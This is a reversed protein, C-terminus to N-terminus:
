PHHLVSVDTPIKRGIFGAGLSAQQVGHPRAPLDQPPPREAPGIPPSLRIRGGSDQSADSPVSRHTPGPKFGKRLQTDLETLFRSDERM